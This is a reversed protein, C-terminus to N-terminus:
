SDTTVSNDININSLFDISKLGNDSDCNQGISINEGTICLGWHKCTLCQVWNDDPRSGSFHECCVLCIKLKEDEDSKEAQIRTDKGKKM